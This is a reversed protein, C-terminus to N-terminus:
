GAAPASARRRGTRRAPAPAAVSRGGCRASSRSRRSVPLSSGAARCSEPFGSAPSQWGCRAWWYRAKGETWRRPAHCPSSRAAPPRAASSAVGQLGDLPHRAKAAVEVVPVVGAVQAHQVRGIDRRHVASIEGPMQDGHRLGAAVPGRLGHRIVPATRWAMARNRQGQGGRREPDSASCSSRTRASAAIAAAAASGAVGRAASVSGISLATARVPSVGESALNQVRAM